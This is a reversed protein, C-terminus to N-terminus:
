IFPDAAMVRAKMLGELVENCYGCMKHEEPLTERLAAMQLLQAQSPHDKEAAIREKMAAHCALNCEECQRLSERVFEEFPLEQISINKYDIGKLGIIVAKPLRQVLARISDTHRCQSEAM